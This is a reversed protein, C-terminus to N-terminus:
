RKIYLNVGQGAQILSAVDQQTILSLYGMYAFIVFGAFFSTLCNLLSIWIADAYLKHNFHNYSALTPMGGYCINLTFFIQVAADRWPQVDLLREWKPSIYFEIGIWAGPLLWGRVGLILLILYPFLATFWAIKGSCQFHSHM